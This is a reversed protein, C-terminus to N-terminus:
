YKTDPIFVSVKLLYSTREPRRQAHGLRGLVGNFLLVLLTPVPLRM